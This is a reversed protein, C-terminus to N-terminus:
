APPAAPATTDGSAVVTLAGAQSPDYGNTIGDLDAYVWDNGDSTSYRYAYDYQVVAEPLMSAVFEDNNGADVNFAAEM